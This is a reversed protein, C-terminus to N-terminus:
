LRWRGRMPQHILRNAEEDNLFVQREPDFRLKRGLQVAIKSLNVLTCSRHGNSENLDFKSRTKVAETFDDMQPEPDPLGAVIKKLNPIDSEFNKFLKGKPGEIFPVDKNKDEGDLVPVFLIRASDVRPFVGFSSSIAYTFKDFSAATIKVAEAIKEIKSIQTEGLFKLTIHINDATIARIDRDKKNLNSTIKYLHNKASDPLDVAIFLRKIAGKNQYKDLYKKVKKAM